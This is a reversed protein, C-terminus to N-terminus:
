KGANMDRLQVLVVACCADFQTHTEPVAIVMPRVKATAQERHGVWEPRQQRDEPQALVIVDPILRSSDFEDLRSASDDIAGKLQFIIHQFPNTGGGNGALFIEMPEFAFDEIAIAIDYGLQTFLDVNSAFRVPLLM